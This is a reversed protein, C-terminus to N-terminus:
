SQISGHHSAAAQCAMLANGHAKSDVAAEALAGGYAGGYANRCSIALSTIRVRQSAGFAGMIAQQLKAPWSPMAMLKPTLSMRRRLLLTPM